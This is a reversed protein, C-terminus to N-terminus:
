AEQAQLKLTFKNMRAVSIVKPPKLVELNVQAEPSHKPQESIEAPAQAADAPATATQEIAEERAVIETALKREPEVRAETKVKEPRVFDVMMREALRRELAEMRQTLVQVDAAEKPPYPLAGKQAEFLKKFTPDQFHVIRHVLLPNQREPILIAQDPNLRRVEDPTLLPREEM